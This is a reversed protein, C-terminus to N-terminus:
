VEVGSQREDDRRLQLTWRRRVTHTLFFSAFHEKKVKRLAIIINIIAHGQQCRAKFLIACSHLHTWREQCKVRYEPEGGGMYCKTHSVRYTNAGVVAVLLEDATKATAWLKLLSLDHESM